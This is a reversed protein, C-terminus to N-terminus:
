ILANKVKYFSVPRLLDELKEKDIDIIAQPTLGNNRLRQMAEYTIEDKTQSSLM